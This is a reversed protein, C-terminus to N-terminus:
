ASSAVFLMHFDMDTKHKQHVPSVPLAALVEEQFKVRSYDTGPLLDLSFLLNLDRSHYWVSSCLRTFSLLHCILGGSSDLM